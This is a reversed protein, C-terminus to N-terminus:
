AGDHAAYHKRAYTDGVGCCHSLILNRQLKATDEVSIQIRALKGFGTNVGYVPDAGAAAAKVIEASKKCTDQASDDLKVSAGVRYVAEWIDLAVHGAKITKSM